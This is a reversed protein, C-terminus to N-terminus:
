ALAPEKISMSEHSELYAASLKRPTPRYCTSKLGDIHELLDSRVHSWMPDLIFDIGERRALKAAPIFDSDGAILVIQDVQKKFALSAIDVGIKMDIGKQKVNYYVDDETLESIKIKDKLLAKTKEPLILWYGNDALQGLRLAVKRLKCLEKHFALRFVSEQSKSFDVAKKTIPNHVKKTLPLCDYFFIRYLERADKESLHKQSLHKFCIKYLEKAIKEPPSSFGYITRYRKLFFAGDVLVATSM